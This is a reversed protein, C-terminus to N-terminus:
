YRCLPTGEYDRTADIVVLRDADRYALPRILLQDVVSFIATNAGIALALTLVAVLSFGPTRRFTRVAYLVDRRADDLWAFSRADRHLDKALEVSGLSRKAARKADDASLGRRGYEDELLQMHSQLEHEVDPEAKAPRCANL